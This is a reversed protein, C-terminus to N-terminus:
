VSASASSPVVAPGAAFLRAHFFPHGCDASSASCSISPTAKSTSNSADNFFPTLFLLDGTSISSYACILSFIPSIVSAELCSCAWLGPEPSVGAATTMATTPAWAAVAGSAISRESSAVSVLSCSSLSTKSFRQLVYACRSTSLWTVNSGSGCVSLWSTVMSEAQSTM